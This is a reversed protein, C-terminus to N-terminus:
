TVFWSVDWVLEFHFLALEALVVRVELERTWSQVVNWILLIYDVFFDM